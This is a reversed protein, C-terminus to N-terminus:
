PARPPPAPAGTDLGVLWRGDDSRRWITIYRGAGLVRESGAADRRRVEYHGVTWGSAPGFAGADTPGWTLGVTPDAFTPADAKRIAEAGRVPDAMRVMRVADPALFSMWGELGRAATAAEFARDAAMLQAAEDARQPTPTVARPRACASALAVYVLAPVIVAWRQSPM